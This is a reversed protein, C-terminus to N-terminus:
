QEYFGSYRETQMTATSTLQVGGLFMPVFLAIDDFEVAVTVSVSEAEDTIPTCTVTYGNSFISSMVRNAEAEAETATAGPVIASRAAYYAADQILNRAMNMRAFEMCTFITVILVNSVIAFEVLTAGLRKKSRKRSGDKVCSRTAVNQRAAPSNRRTSFSFM